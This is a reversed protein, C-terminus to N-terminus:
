RRGVQGCDLLSDKFDKDRYRCGAKPTHFGKNQDIPQMLPPLPCPRRMLTDLVM